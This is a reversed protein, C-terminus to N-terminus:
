NKPIQIKASCKPCRGSKGAQQQPAKISKGCACQFRIFGDHKDLASAIKTEGAEVVSKTDALKPGPKEVAKNAKFSGIQGIGVGSKSKKMGEQQLWEQGDEKIASWDKGSKKVKWGLYDFLTKETEDIRVLNFKLMIAGLLLGAGLGGFQGWIALGRDAAWGGWLNLGAWIMVMWVGGVSFSRIIVIVIYICSITNAPFMVLYLGVLGCVAGNTGVAAAGGSLLHIAGAMIGLALYVPAYAINGLKVCMANGFLWLFLLNLIMLFVGEQVWFYGFLGTPKWGDLVMFEFRGGLALALISLIGTVGVVVYNAIPWRESAVDVQYPIIMLM